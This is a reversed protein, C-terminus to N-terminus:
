ETGELSLVPQLSSAVMSSSFRLRTRHQNKKLLHACMTLAVSLKPLWFWLRFNGFVKLLCWSRKHGKYRVCIGCCSAEERRVEPGKGM